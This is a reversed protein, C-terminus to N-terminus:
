KLKWNVFNQEKQLHRYTFDNEKDRYLAGYATTLTM